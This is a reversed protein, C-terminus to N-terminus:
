IGTGGPRKGRKTIMHEKAMRSIKTGPPNHTGPLRSRRKKTPNFDERKIGATLSGLFATIFKM